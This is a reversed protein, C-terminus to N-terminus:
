KGKGLLPEITGDPMVMGLVIREEPRRGRKVRIVEGAAGEGRGTGDELRNIKMKGGGPHYNEQM